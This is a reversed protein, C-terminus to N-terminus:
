LKEYWFDGAHPHSYLAQFFQCIPDRFRGAWHKPWWAKSLRVYTKTGKMPAQVYARVCDSQLLKANKMLSFAVLLIRCATKTSLVTGIEQFIAWQGTATEVKNESVVIRGKYKLANKDEYHKTGVIAYVRVIYAEPEKPAVECAESSNADDWVNHERLDAFEDMIAKVAPPSRALPDGPALTKTIMISWLREPGLKERHGTPDLRGIMEDEADDCEERVKPVSAMAATARQRLAEEQIASHIANAMDPTYLETRKTKAGACPSLVPHLEKRPCQIKSLTDIIAPFTSAVTWPKKIPTNDKASTLEAACGQMNVKNM